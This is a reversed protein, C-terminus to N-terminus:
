CLTEQLWDTTGFSVTCLLAAPRPQMEAAVCRGKSRGQMKIGNVDETDKHM